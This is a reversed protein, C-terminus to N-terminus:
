AALRRRSHQQRITALIRELRRELADGNTGLRRGIDPEATDVLFECDEILNRQPETLAHWACLVRDLDTAVETCRLCCIHGYTSPDDDPNPM